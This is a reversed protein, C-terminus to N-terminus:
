GWAGNVQNLAVCLGKAPKAAEDNVWFPMFFLHPQNDLVHYRVATVETGNERM